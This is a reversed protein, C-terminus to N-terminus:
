FLFLTPSPPPPLQVTVDFVSTAVLFLEVCGERASDASARLFFIRRPDLRELGRAALDYQWITGSDAHQLIRVPARAPPRRTQRCPSIRDIPLRLFAWERVLRAPPRLISLGGLFGLLIPLARLVLIVFNTCSPHISRRTSVGHAATQISPAAAFLLSPPSAQLSRPSCSLTKFLYIRTHAPVQTLMGTNGTLAHLATPTFHSEDFEFGYKTLLERM